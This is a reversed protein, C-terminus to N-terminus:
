ADGQGFFIEIASEHLCIDGMSQFLAWPSCELFVGRWYRDRQRRHDKGAEVDDVAAKGAQHRKEWATQETEQAILRIADGSGDESM